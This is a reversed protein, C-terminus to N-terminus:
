VLRAALESFDDPDFFGPSYQREFSNILETELDIRSLRSLGQENLYRCLASMLDKGKIDILYQGSPFFDPQNIEALIQDYLTTVNPAKFEAMGAFTECDGKARSCESRLYDLWEKRGPYLADESPKLPPDPWMFRTDVAENKKERLRRYTLWGVHHEVMPRALQQMLDDVESATQPLRDAGRVKDEWLSQFAGGVVRPDLLYNEIEHRRWIFRKGKDVQWTAEVESRSRYDRDEICYARDTPADQRTRRSREEFYTAVSGLSGEGGAPQIIVNKGLAQAIIVDLVRVDLSDVPGECILYIDAM